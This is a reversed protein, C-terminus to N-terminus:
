LAEYNKFKLNINYKKFGHTNDSHNIKEKHNILKSYYDYLTKKLNIFIRVM